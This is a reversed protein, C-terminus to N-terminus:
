AKDPASPATENPFAAESILMAAYQRNDESKIERGVIRSATALVLSVAEQRFAAIAATHELELQKRAHTMFEEASVRGSAIIREAEAEAKRRAKIVIANAVTEATHLRDDYRALLAKAQTKDNESQEISDQVRKARDAMFKTVPKWLIVRLIICLFTINIITIVLTVSFDLM